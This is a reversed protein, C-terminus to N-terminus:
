RGIAVLTYAVLGAALLLGLVLVLIPVRNM